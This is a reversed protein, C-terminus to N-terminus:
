FNEHACIYFMSNTHFTKCVVCSFFPVFALRLYTQWPGIEEFKM